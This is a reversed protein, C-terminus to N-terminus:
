RVITSEGIWGGVTYSSGKNIDPHMFIEKDEPFYKSYRAILGNAEGACSPDVSKAKVFKDVAVWYVAKALM